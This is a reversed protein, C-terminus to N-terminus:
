RPEGIDRKFIKIAILYVPALFILAIAGGIIACLAHWTKSKGTELGFALGLDIGPFIWCLLVSGYLLLKIIIPMEEAQTQQEM